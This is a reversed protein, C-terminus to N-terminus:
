RLSSKLGQLAYYVAAVLCFGLGFNKKVIALSERTNFKHTIGGPLAYSLFQEDYVFRAGNRLLRQNFDFDAYLRYTLDFPPLPHLSKRILLAQHHLTNGLKLRFDVKSQFVINENLIVRGYIIDSAEIRETAPLKLVKDGAGLYLLHSEPHALMWGKNFADYIGSDKESVLHDLQGQAKYRRLIDLTGDTSGGDVVIYQINDAGLAVVSKLTAEINNVGNYVVTIISILSKGQKAQM